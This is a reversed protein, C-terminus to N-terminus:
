TAARGCPGAVSGSGAGLGVESAPGLLLAGTDHDGVEVSGKALDMVRLHGHQQLASTVAEPSVFDM